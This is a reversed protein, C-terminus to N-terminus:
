RGRIAPLYVQRTRCAGRDVEPCAVPGTLDRSFCIRVERLRRGDCTVAIADAPLRNLAAFEAEVTAPDVFRAPGPTRYPPPVVIRAFLGAAQRLYADGDLGSCTGHKQWEHRILGVSPMLPLMADVARRSPERAASPCDSPYGRAYQPWLGHLTFAFPRACEAARRADGEAECWSPSWSLSLVWFDFDGATGRASAPAALSLLLLAALGAARRRM